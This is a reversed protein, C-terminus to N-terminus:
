PNTCYDSDGQPLGGRQPLAKIVTKEAPPLLDFWCVAYFSQEKDSIRLQDTKYLDTKSAKNRQRLDYVGVDFFSNQTAKIGVATAVVTGKAIFPHDNFRTTRSDDIQGQPLKDAYAKFQDTLTSLHDFRFMIGCSDMFDFMYQTETKGMDEAIYKSGRYLYADRPTSVSLNNNAPNDSSLGGHPKFDGGRVQGPMLVNTVNSAVTPLSLELPDECAPATATPKWNEGDFSWEVFSKSSGTTQSNAAGFIRWAIFCILGLIVLIIIIEVVGFGRQKVKLM